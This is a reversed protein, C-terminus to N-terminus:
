AGRRVAAELRSRYHELGPVQLGPVKAEDDWRRVAVAAAWHPECEFEKREEASFPGGQLVLSQESAPSLNERYGAEVACLYRKAAVHLRVPDVIEAGFHGRLWDAGGDEHRADIGRRAVDEGLGHLLHGVDHLLAAVVLSDSAGSSEALAASQLAHEMESVSEGFYAGQGAREFVEIIRDVVSM